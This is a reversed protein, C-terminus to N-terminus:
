PRPTQEESTPESHVRKGARRATSVFAHAWRCNGLFIMPSVLLFWPLARPTQRMLRRALTLMRYGPTAWALWPHQVLIAGPLPARLRAAAASTGLRKQHTLFAKWETRNLHDVVISADLCCRFRTALRRHLLTDEGPFIDEPFQESEFVRDVYSVNASVLNKATLFRTGPTFEGFESLYSAWGILSKPTGNAMAGGVVDWEAHRELHRGLWDRTAVCDADTFALISGRAHHAGLNRGKGPLTKDELQILRVSPYRKAVLDGTGDDSSDVLIVEYLFDGEQELLAELCREITRRSNYSPVIVSARPSDTDSTVIPM